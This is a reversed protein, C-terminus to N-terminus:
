PIVAAELHIYIRLLGLKVLYDVTVFSRVEIYAVVVVRGVVLRRGADVAFTGVALGPKGVQLTGAM